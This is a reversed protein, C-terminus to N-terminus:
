SVWLNIITVKLRRESILELRITKGRGSRPGWQCGIEYLGLKDNTIVRKSCKDGELNDKLKVFEIESDFDIEDIASYPKQLEITDSKPEYHRFKYYEIDYDRLYPVLQQRIANAREPSFESVRLKNLTWAIKYSNLKCDSFTQESQPTGNFRQIFRKLRSPYKNRVSDATREWFLFASKLIPVISTDDQFALIQFIQDPVVFEDSHATRAVFLDQYIRLNDITKSNIAQNKITQGVQSFYYLQLYDQLDSCKAAISLAATTDIECINVLPHIIMLASDVGFQDAINDLERTSIRKQGASSLYILTLIFIVCLNKIREKQFHSSTAANRRSIYLTQNKRM